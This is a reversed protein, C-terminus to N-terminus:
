SFRWPFLKSSISTGEQLLVPDILSSGQQVERSFLKSSISSGLM